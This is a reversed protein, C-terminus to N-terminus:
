EIKRQSSSQRPRNLIQTIKEKFWSTKALQKKTIRNADLFSHNINKMNFFKYFDTFDDSKLSQVISDVEGLLNEDRLIKYANRTPKLNLLITEFQFKKQEALNQKYSETDFDTSVERINEPHYVYNEFNYFDLVFLNRYRAQLTNVENDTLYDRDIIGFYNQNSKINRFVEDKNQVGVFVKNELNLLNYFDDDKNECLIIQKGDFIQFVVEKPVAIEFVELTEKPQPVITQPLDFDFQDFDLIAANESERAYQIFGLSHSATWLQCNEPIWNETIEKLLAYQLSTNLHVDLEDIFYITNQFNERRVLLNLLISFIEKEGSSLLEYDFISDGKRFTIQTPKNNIPLSLNALSLSTSAEQGFIRGMADNIPIIYRERLIKSDFEGQENFVEGLIENILLVVDNEFREDADILFRPRDSDSDVNVTTTLSSRKLRPTQRLASRGYFWKIDQNRAISVKGGASIEEGSDFKVTVFANERNRRYYDTLQYNMFVEDKIPQSIWEFADFVSSKGSGNAGIVLVLKPSPQVSSLDITLKNFRKFNTLQIKSIHM